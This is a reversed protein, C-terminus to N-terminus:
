RETVNIIARITTNVTTRKRIPNAAVREELNSSSLHLLPQGNGTVSKETASMESYACASEFDIGSLHKVSQDENTILNISELSFIESARIVFASGM